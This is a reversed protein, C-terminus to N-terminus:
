GNVTVSINDATWRSLENFDITVQGSTLGNVSLATVYSNGYQGIVQNIPTYIRSIPVEEGIDFGLVNFGCEAAVLEGSSYKLIAAVVMDDADAPLTGDNQIEIIIVMDVYIPRSFTIDKKNSPYLDYVDEVTVPTGAAHLKCGPNKKRFIALAVDDNDGGDVIPAISHAPLGNGYFDDTSTDNELCIVRRVGAVAFLEGLVNDIQNSGPRAVAKARELRLSSDSQRNTGPTAVSLNTVTQWGGVTNVIRTITGISAQTAGNATCTATTDVTGGVGITANSDISWQSSDVTSEVLKGAVILTGPVGGLRLSVNSPSGPSRTTGTLSCVINLDVGKAKNPDKSNYARQITEDLNSFTEADAAIKLGDPTSPDLNWNPDIDTYLETEEAFWENQPKVVYGTNTLEAM